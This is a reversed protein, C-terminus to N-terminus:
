RVDPNEGIIEKIKKTMRKEITIIRIWFGLVGFGIGVMGCLSFFTVPHMGFIEIM